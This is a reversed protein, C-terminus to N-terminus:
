TEEKGFVFYIVPGIIQVLLVVIIWITRNGFKYRPHKLVHILATVALLLEILIVPILLPLYQILTEM